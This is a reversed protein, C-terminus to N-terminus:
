GLPAKTRTRRRRISALYRREVDVNLGRAEKADLRLWPDFANEGLVDRVLKGKEGWTLPKPSEGLTISLPYGTAAAWRDVFALSPRGRGSEVRAVAPQTTGGIRRALETQTLGAKVRRARLEIALQQYNM